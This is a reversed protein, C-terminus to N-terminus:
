LIYSKFMNRKKVELACNGLIAPNRYVDTQGRRRDQGPNDLGRGSSTTKCCTGQSDCIEVMVRANSGAWNRTGTKTAIKAM